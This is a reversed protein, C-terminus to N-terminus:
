YFFDHCRDITGMGVALGYAQNAVMSSLFTLIFSLVAVSLRALLLPTGIL